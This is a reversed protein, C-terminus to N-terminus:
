AMGPDFPRINMEDILDAAAPNFQREEDFASGATDHLVCAMKLDVAYGAFDPGFLLINMQDIIDYGVVDTTARDATARYRAQEFKNYFEAVAHVYADVVVENDDSRKALSRVAKSAEPGFFAYHLASTKM